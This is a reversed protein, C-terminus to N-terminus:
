RVHTANEGWLSVHVEPQEDHAAEDQEVSLEDDLFCLVSVLVVDPSSKNTHYGFVMCICGGM